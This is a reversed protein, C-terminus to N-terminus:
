CHNKDPQVRGRGLIDLLLPPFFLFTPQMLFISLKTKAILFNSIILFFNVIRIYVEGLDNETVNGANTMHKDEKFEEEFDGIDILKVTDNERGSKFIFGSTSGLSDTPFQLPENKMKDHELMFSFEDFHSSSGPWPNNYSPNNILEQSASAVSLIEQLADVEKNNNHQNIIGSHVATINTLDLDSFENFELAPLSLRHQIRACELAM